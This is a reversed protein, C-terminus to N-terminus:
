SPVATTQEALRPPPLRGPQTSPGLSTLVQNRGAYKAAYMTEDARHLLTSIDEAGDWQTVGISCTQGFPTARRMAELLVRADGLDCEPLVALFEEGGFRILADSSRLVARWQQGARRLLADGTPHGYRDNYSKFHDLDLMALCLPLGTHAARSLEQPLLDDLARRNLLGTLADTHAAFSLRDVLDARELAVTIETALLPLLVQVRQPLADLRETWVVTLVGVARGGRLVPEFLASAGRADRLVPQTGRDDAGADSVFRREASRFARATGPCGTVPLALPVQDLGDTEVLVLDSGDHQYLGVGAAGCVSHVARCVARRAASPDSTLAMERHAGALIEIDRVHETLRQEAQRLATVDLISGDLYMRGGVQRMRGRDRVWRLQGDAGQLRYQIDLFGTLKAAEHTRSFLEIEEPHVYDVWVAGQAAESTLGLFRERCPGAFRLVYGGDPLFEGSYVYEEIAGLIRMLTANVDTLRELEAASTTADAAQGPGTGRRPRVARQLVRAAVLGLRSRRAPVRAADWVQRDVADM